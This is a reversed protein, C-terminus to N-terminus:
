AGMSPTASGTLLSSGLKLKNPDVGDSGTLLTSAPTAGAGAGAGGGTNGARVMSADPASAMQPADTPTPPATPAQGDPALMSSLAAGALSSGVGVAISTMVAGSM